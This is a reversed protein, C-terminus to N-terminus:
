KSVRRGNEDMGLQVLHKRRREVKRQEMKDIERRKTLGSKDAWAWWLVAGAFPSLIWWWSWDAPPGFEALKMVILLVGAIVFAMSLEWAASGTM